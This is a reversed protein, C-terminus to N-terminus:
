RGCLWLTMDKKLKAIATNAARVFEEANKSRVPVAYSFLRSKVVNGGERMLRLEISIDAFSSDKEIRHVFSHVVSELIYDSKATSAYDTVGRFNGSLYLADMLNKMLIRSLPKNWESYLYYSRKLREKSYYIRTGMSNEIGRPYEVRITSHRYIHRCSPGIDTKSELTYSQITHSAVCGAMVSIVMGLLLTLLYTKKM